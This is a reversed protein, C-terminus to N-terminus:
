VSHLLLPIQVGAEVKTGCEFADSMARQSEADRQGIRGLWAHGFWGSWDSNM